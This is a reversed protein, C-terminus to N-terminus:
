KLYIQFKYFFIRPSSLFVFPDRNTCDSIKIEFGASFQISSFQINRLSQTHIKFKNINPKTCPFMRRFEICRFVDVYASFLRIHKWEIKSQKANKAPHKYTPDFAAMEIPCYITHDFICVKSYKSTTYMQKKKKFIQRWHDRDYALCWLFCEMTRPAITQKKHVIKEVNKEVTQVHARTYKILFCTLMSFTDVCRDFWLEIWIFQLSQENVHQNKKNEEAIMVTAAM